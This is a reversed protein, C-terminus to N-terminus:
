RWDGPIGGTRVTRGSLEPGSLKEQLFEVCVQLKNSTTLRSPYVAWIHAEQSYQPLVQVLEGADLLPRVDWLSRLVIGLGQLAWQVVIEGQNSSLPGTVKVHQIDGQPTGLSWTGFSSRVGERIVLCDHAALEALTRPTGRRALYDPSACLVRRNEAIRRSILHPAIENGVRLDLDYGDAAVDAFHDLVEFQIQLLPYRAVLEPMLPGVISSGFGFSSCIRMSGRPLTHTGAAEELLRDVEDLVRLARQYVREGAESVTVRRTTRHLLRVGLSRELLQIRKSVYAASMGLEHAAAAFSAKRAVAAFVMLDENSVSNVM